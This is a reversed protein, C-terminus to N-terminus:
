QSLSFINVPIRATSCAPAEGGDIRCLMVEFRTEFDGWSTTGAELRGGKFRETVAVDMSTAEDSGEAMDIRLRPLGEPSFTVAWGRMDEEDHVLATIGGFPTLLGGFLRGEEGSETRVEYWINRRGIAEVPAGSPALITVSSGLRLTAVVTDDPARLNADDVGM